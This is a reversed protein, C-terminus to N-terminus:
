ASDGLARCATLITDGEPVQVVQDDITVSVTARTPRAVGARELQVLTSM